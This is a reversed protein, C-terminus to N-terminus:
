TTHAEHAAHEQEQGAACRETVDDALKKMSPDKTTIEDQAHVYHKWLGNLQKRTLEVLEDDALDNFFNRQKKEEGAGLRNMLQASLNRKGKLKNDKPLPLTATRDRKKGKSKTGKDLVARLQDGDTKDLKIDPNNLGDLSVRRGHSTDEHVNIFRPLGGISSRRRKKQEATIRGGSGRRVVVRKKGATKKKGAGETPLPPLPSSPIGPLAPLPVSTSSKGPLAPLPALGAPKKKAQTITIKTAGAPKKKTSIPPLDGLPKLEALDMDTSTLPKLKITGRRKLQAPRQKKALARAKETSDDKESAAVVTIKPANSNSAAGADADATPKRTPKKKPGSATGTGGSGVAQRVHRARAGKAHLRKNCASCLTQECQPCVVEVGRAAVECEECVSAAAPTPPAGPKPGVSIM